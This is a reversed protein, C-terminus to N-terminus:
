KKWVLVQISWNLCCITHYFRMFLSYLTCIWNIARLIQMFCFLCEWTGTFMAVYYPVTSQLNLPNPGYLKIRNREVPAHYPQRKLASHLFVVIYNLGSLKKEWCSPAHKEWQRDWWKHFFLKWPLELLDYMVFIVAVWMFKM